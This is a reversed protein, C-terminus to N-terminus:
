SARAKVESIAQNLEELKRLLEPLAREPHREMLGTIVESAREAGRLLRTAHEQEGNKFDFEALDLFTRAAELDVTAFQIGLQRTRARLQEGEAARKSLEKLRRVPGGRTM